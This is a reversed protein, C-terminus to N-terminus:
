SHHKQSLLGSTEMCVRYPMPQEPTACLGVHVSSCRSVSTISSVTIVLPLAPLSVMCPLSASCPHWPSQHSCAHQIAKVFTHDPWLGARVYRGGKGGRCDPTVQLYGKYGGTAGDCHISKAPTVQLDLLVAQAEQVADRVPKVKDFRCRELAEAARVSAPQAGAPLAAPSPSDLGPGLAVALAKLAEAAARRTPWDTSSM